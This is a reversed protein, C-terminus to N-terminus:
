REDNKVRIFGAGLGVEVNRLYVEKSPTGCPLPANWCNSSRYHPFTLDDSLYVESKSVVTARGEVVGGIDIPVISPPILYNFRPNDAISIDNKRIADILMQHVKSLPQYILCILSGLVVVYFCVGIRYKSLTMSNLKKYSIFGLFIAPIILLWQIGFRLTPANVLFFLNGVLASMVMFSVGDIQRMKKYIYPLFAINLLLLIVTPIEYRSTAWRFLAVGFEKPHLDPYPWIAPGYFASDFVVKKVYTASSLDIQWPLDFLLIQSPFLPLGTVILNGYLMPLIGTAVILMVVGISRLKNHFICYSAALALLPLVSLKIGIGFAAFLLGLWSATKKSIRNNLYISGVLVGLIMIPVDPSPSVLMGWRFMLPLVILYGLFTYGDVLHYSDKGCKKPSLCFIMHTITLLLLYGNIVSAVRGQLDGYNFLAHIAFWSSTLGYRDMLLGLGKVLGYESIWKILSWHYGGTDGWFIIQSSYLAVIVIMPLYFILLYNVRKLQQLFLIFFDRSKPLAGMLFLEALFIQGFNNPTIPGWFSMFYLFTSLVFLGLWQAYLFYEFSHLRDQPKTLYSLILMGIPTSILMLLFWLGIVVLM